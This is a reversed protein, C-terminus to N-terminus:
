YGRAKKEAERVEDFMLKGEASTLYRRIYHDSLSGYDNAREVEEPDPCEGFLFWRVFSGVDFIEKVEGIPIIRLYGASLNDSLALVALWERPNLDEGIGNRKAGGLVKAYTFGSQEYDCRILDGVIVSHRSFAFARANPCYIPKTFKSFRLNSMPENGKANM